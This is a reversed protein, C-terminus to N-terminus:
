ALINVLKLRNTEPHATIFEKITGHKMWESVMMLSESTKEAGLLRLLNPHKFQHWLVVECCFRQRAKM